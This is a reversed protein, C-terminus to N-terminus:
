DPKTTSLWDGLFKIWNVQRTYILQVGILRVRVTNVYILGDSIYKCPGKVM